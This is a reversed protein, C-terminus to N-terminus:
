PSNTSFYIPALSHLLYMSFLVDTIEFHSSIHKKFGSRIRQPLPMGAMEMSSDMQRITEDIEMSLVGMKDPDFYMM